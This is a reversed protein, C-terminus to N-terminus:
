PKQTVANHIDADDLSLRRQAELAPQRAAVDQSLLEALAYRRYLRLFHNEFGLTRTCIARLRMREDHAMPIRYQWTDRVRQAMDDLLTTWEDGIHERYMSACQRKTAVYQGASYALLATAMWGVARMLDRTGPAQHGNPLRRLRRAYGFFEDSPDPYDLPIALPTPRSFLGALRWYSSHMRDRTWPALPMIDMSQIVDEGWLLRSGLKLTPSVGARLAVEEKVEIDLEGRSQTAWTASLAEIRAQEGARLREAVILVLDLDSTPLATEDAYSGLVYVTRLRNPLAAFCEDLVDQVLIDMQPNGTSAALATETV